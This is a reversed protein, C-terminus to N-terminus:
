VAYIYIEPNTIKSIDNYQAVNVAPHGDVLETLNETAIEILNFSNFIIYGMKFSKIKYVPYEYFNPYPIFGTDVQWLDNFTNITKIPFDIIIKVGKKIILRGMLRRGSITAKIIKESTDLLEGDVERILFKRDGWIEGKKYVKKYEGKEPLTYYKFKRFALTEDKGFLVFLDFVNGVFLDKKSYTNEGKCKEALYYDETNGRDTITCKADVMFRPNNDTNDCTQIFSNGYEFLKTCEGIPCTNKTEM